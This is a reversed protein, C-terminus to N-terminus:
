RGLNYFVIMIIFLTTLLTKYHKFFYNIWLINSININKISYYNIYYLLVNDPFSPSIKRIFFAYNNTNLNEKIIEHNKKSEEEFLYPSTSSAMRTWDVIHSPKCITTNLLNCKYLIIAFLSENALGGKCVLTTLRSDKNVFQILSEADKRALIFYPDNALHLEQPLYKLNGRKHLHINWWAYKWSLVSKNYTTNFMYRFQHPSIIPCCSETLICIWQNSKDESLAYNILSLYAPIVYYYSTEYIYSEPILYKKLWPSIVKSKDKYYVYINIIDENPKIWERWINEKNLSHDYSIIFCLSIKMNWNYQM